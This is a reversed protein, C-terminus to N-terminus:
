YVRAALREVARQHQATWVDKDITLVCLKECQPYQEHNVIIYVGPQYTVDVSGPEDLYISGSTLVVIAAGGLRNFVPSLAAWNPSQKWQADDKGPLVATIFETGRIGITATPTRVKTNRKGNGGASLTERLSMGGEKLFSWLGGSKDVLWKVISNEGVKAQINGDASLSNFSASGGKGVSLTDGNKVKYNENPVKGNVETGESVNVTRQYCAYTTIHIKRAYLPEEVDFHSYRSKGCFERAKEENPYLYMGEENKFEHLHYIGKAIRTPLQLNVIPDSPAISAFYPQYPDGNIGVGELYLTGYRLPIRGSGFTGLICLLRNDHKQIDILQKYFLKNEEELGLCYQSYLQAQEYNIVSRYLEQTAPKEPILILSSFHIEGLPLTEALSISPRVVLLIIVFLRM